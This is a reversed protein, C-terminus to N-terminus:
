LPLLRTTKRGHSHDPPQGSRDEPHIKQQLFLLQLTERGHPIRMHIKLHSNRTFRKGCEPCHFPKKRVDPGADRVPIEVFNLGLEHETTEKWGVDGTKLRLDLCVKQGPESSIAGGNNGLAEPRTQSVQPDEDDEDEVKVTIEAEESSRIQRRDQSTWHEVNTHSPEPDLSSSWDKQVSFANKKLSPEQDETRHLRLQRQNEEKSRGREEEYEALTREVLGCIEEAAAALRQKVLSRLIQAISM